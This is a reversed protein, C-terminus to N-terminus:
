LRRRLPAQSRACVMAFVLMMLWSGYANPVGHEGLKGGVMCRSRCFRRRELVLFVLGFLFNKPRVDRPPRDFNQFFLMEAPIDM